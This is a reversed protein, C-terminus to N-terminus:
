NEGARTRWQQRDAVQASCVELTLLKKQHKKSRGYTTEGSATVCLTAKSTPRITGDEGFNFQQATSSDCNALDLKQGATINKAVMCVDFKPMYLQKNAIRSKDFIQDAGLEGKYSYCTHAQLGEEVKINNGGGMIDLCYSSTTGDLRDKLTIEVENTTSSSAAAKETQTNTSTGYNSSCAALLTAVGALCGISVIKKM